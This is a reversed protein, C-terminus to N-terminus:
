RITAGTIGCAWRLWIANRSGPRRRCSKLPPSVSGSCINSPWRIPSPPFRGRLPEPIGPNRISFGRVHLEYVVTDSWPTIPPSLGEAGDQAVVIGKPMFPASDTDDPLLAKETSGSRYDFMSAHLAFPRDIARAYPDLLLKAPNFRHGEAPHYPGHARLGYRAGVAVDPVHDHFVDGTRGRLRVRRIEREGDFLCFEIASANASFVAVNVGNGSLTAGLIEPDGDSPWRSTM